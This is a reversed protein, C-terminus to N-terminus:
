LRVAVIGERMEIMKLYDSAALVGTDPGRGPSMPSTILIRSTRTPLSVLVTRHLDNGEVIESFGITFRISPKSYRPVAPAMLNAFIHDLVNNLSLLIMPGDISHFARLWDALETDTYIAMNEHLDTFLLVNLGLEFRLVISQLLEDNSLWKLM